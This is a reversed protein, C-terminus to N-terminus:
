RTDQLCIVTPLLQNDCKIVQTNSSFSLEVSLAAMFKATGLGPAGFSASFEDLASDFRPTTPSTPFFLKTVEWTPNTTFFGGALAASKLSM